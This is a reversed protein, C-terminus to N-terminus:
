CVRCLLVPVFCLVPVVLKFTHLPLLIMCVCLALSPLVVHLSPFVVHLSPLVVSVISLSLPLMFSKVGVHVSITFVLSFHGYLM